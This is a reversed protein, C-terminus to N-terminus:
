FLIKLIFLVILYTEGVGLLIGLITNIGKVIPLRTLIKLTQFILNLIKDVSIVITLVLVYTALRGYREQVVSSYGLYLLWVVFLAVGLSLGHRLEAVFGRKIGCRVRWVLIALVVAVVIIQGIM